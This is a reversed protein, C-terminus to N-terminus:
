KCYRDFVLKIIENIKDEETERAALTCGSIYCEYLDNMMEKAKPNQIIANMMEKRKEITM